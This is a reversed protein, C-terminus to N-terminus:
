MAPGVHSLQRGPRDGEQEGVDLAGGPQELLDAIQVRLDEVIVGGDKAPGDVLPAPDLDARLSVREERGESARHLAHLGRHGGLPAQGGVVPGRAGRQPDPHAEVRPLPDAAPVVVDADVHVPGRPDGIRGVAPLDDDGVGRPTEHLAGKRTPDGEPVEPLMPQLVDDVGLAEMVEHDLAQRGVERRGPGQVGPRVVEGGLEGREHAPLLLDVLDPPDEAPGPEEGEGPGPPGPLGAQGELDGPLDEGLVPVAGEEGVERRHGIGGQNRRRDGVGQPNRLHGPAGDELGHRVM